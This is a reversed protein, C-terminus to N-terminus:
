EKKRLYDYMAEMEEYFSSGFKRILADKIFQFVPVKKKEGLACADSCIDWEDYNVAVFGTQPNEIIRVPYLHCSIPKRFPITGKNYEKEIGCHLFGNKSEYLYVCSGDPLLPTGEFGPGKYPISHGVEEIKKIADPHLHKKVKPYADKIAKIEDEELPAGYDGARCCAGKCKDLNCIFKRDFVDDSILVEQIVIM